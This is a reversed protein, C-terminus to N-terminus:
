KYYSRVADKIIDTAIEDDGGISKLYDFVESDNKGLISQLAETNDAEAIKESSQALKKSFGNPDSHKAQIWKIWDEDGLNNELSSEFPTVVIATVKGEGNKKMGSIRHYGDILNYGGSKRKEVILPDAAGNKLEPADPLSDHHIQSINVVGLGSKNSNNSDNALSEGSSEGGPGFEGKNEPQGRPHKSEDFSSMQATQYKAPTLDLVPLSKSVKGKEAKALFHHGDIIRDNMLLVAKEENAHVEDACAGNTCYRINERATELNHQDAKALLEPVTMGYKTVLPNGGFHKAIEQQTSEPLTAARVDGIYASMKASTTQQGTASKGEVINEAAAAQQPNDSLQSIDLATVTPKYGSAVLERNADEVAKAVDVAAQKKAQVIQKWDRNTEAVIDQPCELGARLNDINEENSYGADVTASIPLMWRGKTIGPFSPFISKQVADLIVINSLRKLKPRHITNKIRSLEKSAKEIELRSPAGGVKTCSILFAYNLGLAIAVREDSTEVGAILEPGPSDPSIGTMTDGNFAYEVLPGGPIRESYRVQGDLLIDEEYGGTDPQGNQNTVFFATKAQRLAADMGIQFLREGKEMHQLATAFKSVGRVGRISAPDRFYFVNAADYIVPNAYFANTRQYIKYAVCDAGYFYRGQLYMVNLAGESQPPCEYLIGNSDKALCCYREMTFNYIEGLQDSSFEILRLNDAADRWLIMGGDGRIPTELDATRSFADQMSCDVGMSGFVGGSFDDGHLYQTIASDLGSDGTDPIYRMMSSCYNIRQSIYAAAIASDKYAQEATFNLTLRQISAITSNPNTGYRGGVTTTATPNAAAYNALKATLGYAAKAINRMAGLFTPQAPAHAQQAPLFRM